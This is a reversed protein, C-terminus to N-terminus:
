LPLQNLTAQKMRSSISGPAARPPGPEHPTAPCGQQGVPGSHLGLETQWPPMHTAQPPGMCGQQGGLLKQPIVM